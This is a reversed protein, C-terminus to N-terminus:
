LPWIPRAVFEGRLAVPIIHLNVLLFAYSATVAVRDTRHADNIQILVSLRNDVLILTNFAIGAVPHASILPIPRPEDPRDPLDEGNKM